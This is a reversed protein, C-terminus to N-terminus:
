QWAEAQFIIDTEVESIEEEGERDRPQEFPISPGPIPHDGVIPLHPQGYVRLTHAYRTMQLCRGWPYFRLIWLRPCKRHMWRDM